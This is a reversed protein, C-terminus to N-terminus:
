DDIGENEWLSNVLDHITLIQGSKDRISFGEVLEVGLAYADCKPCIPTFAMDKSLLSKPISRFVPKNKKCKQLDEKSIEMLEFGCRPCPAGVTCEDPELLVEMLSEFRRISETDDDSSMTQIDPIVWHVKDKM